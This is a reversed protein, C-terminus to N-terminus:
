STFGVVAKVELFEEFGFLGWEKGNGSQKYGGFPTTFDAGANNIAISGARIRNAVQKAHELDGSSVYGYLGYETDNAIEIAEEEDKNRFWEKSFQPHDIIWYHTNEEQNPALFNTHRSLVSKSVPNPLFM